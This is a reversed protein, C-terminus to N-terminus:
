WKDRLAQRVVSLVSQVAWAVMVVLMPTLFGASWAGAADALTPVAFVDTLSMTEGVTCSRATVIVRPYAVTGAILNEQIFYCQWGGTYANCSAMSVLYPADFRPFGAEWDARAEALTERCPNGGTMYGITM